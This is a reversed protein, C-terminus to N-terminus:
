AKNGKGSLMLWSVIDKTINAWGYTDCYYYIPDPNVVGHMQVEIIDGVSLSHGEFDDPRRENFIEYLFELLDLDDRAEETGSWVLRYPDFSWGHETATRWGMFSFEQEVNTQFIEYQYKNM